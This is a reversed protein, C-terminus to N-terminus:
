DWSEEKLKSAYMRTLTDFDGGSILIVANYYEETGYDIMYQHFRYSGKEIGNNVYEKYDKIICLKRKNEVAKLIEDQMKSVSYGNLPIFETTKLEKKLGSNIFTNIIQNLKNVIALGKKPNSFDIDKTICLSAKNSGTRKVKLGKLEKHNELLGCLNLYYRKLLNSEMIMTVEGNEPNVQQSFKM